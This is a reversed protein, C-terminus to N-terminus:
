ESRSIPLMRVPKLRLMQLAILSTGPKAAPVKVPVSDKARQDAFSRPSPLVLLVLM